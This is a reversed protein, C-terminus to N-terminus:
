RQERGRGPREGALLVNGRRELSAAWRELAEAVGVPNGGPISRRMAAALEHYRYGVERNVLHIAMDTGIEHVVAALDMLRVGLAGNTDTLWRDTTEALRTQIDNLSWGAPPRSPTDVM